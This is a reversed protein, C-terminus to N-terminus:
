GNLIADIDNEMIREHDKLIYNFLYNMGNIQDRSVGNGYIGFNYEPLPEFKSVTLWIFKANDVTLLAFPLIAEERHHIVMKNKLMERVHKSNEENLKLSVVVELDPKEKIRQILNDFMWPNFPPGFIDPSSLYHINENASEVFRTMMLKVNNKKQLSWVLNPESKEERVELKALEEKLREATQLKSQINSIERSFVTEVPVATYKPGRAKGEQIVFGKDLLRKVSDYVRTRDIGTVKSINHPSSPGVKILAVYVKSDNVNWGLNVLDDYYPM